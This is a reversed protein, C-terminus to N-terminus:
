CTLTVGTIEVTAETSISLMVNEVSHLDVGNVTGRKLSNKDEQKRMEWHIFGVCSFNSATKRTYSEGEEEDQM